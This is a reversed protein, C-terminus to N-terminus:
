AWKLTTLNCKLNAITVLWWILECSHASKFSMLNHLNDYILRLWNPWLITVLNAVWSAWTCKRNAWGRHQCDAPPDNKRSFWCPRTWDISKHPHEHLTYIFIIQNTTQFLWGWQRINKWLTWVVLWNYIHTCQPYFIVSSSFLHLVLVNFRTPPKSCTKKKRWSLGLQSINKLPTWVVLWNKM